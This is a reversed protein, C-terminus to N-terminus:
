QCSCAGTTTNITCTLRLDSYSTLNNDKMYGCLMGIRFKKPTNSLYGIIKAIFDNLTDDIATVLAELLSVRSEIDEVKETLNTVQEELKSVREELTQNTQNTQNIQLSFETSNSLAVEDIAGVFRTVDPKNSDSGIYFNVNNKITEFTVNTSAELIGDVFLMIESQNLTISQNTQNTQNTQNIQTLIKTINIVGRIHHWQGDTVFTNGIIVIKKSNDTVEFASANSNHVMLLFGNIFNNFTERWSVIARNDGTANTKIWAEITTNGIENTSQNFPVIITSLGDFNRANGFKGPVVTTGVINGHNNNGSSDFAINGSPEDLHWIGIASTQAFAVSFFITFLIVGAIQKIM